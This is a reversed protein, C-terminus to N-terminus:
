SNMLRKLAPIHELLAFDTKISDIRAGRHSINAEGIPGIVSSAAALYGVKEPVIGMIRACTADVAALNKGMVLAGVNKPTGMIPGDGEMGVIGDV